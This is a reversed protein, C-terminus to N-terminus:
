PGSRIMAARRQQAIGDIGELANAIRLPMPGDAARLIRWALLVAICESVVLAIQAATM